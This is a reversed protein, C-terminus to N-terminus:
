ASQREFQVEAAPLILVFRTPGNERRDFRITGGNQRAYQWATSLGLGRGRGDFRGQLDGPVHLRDEARGTFRAVADITRDGRRLRHALRAGLELHDDVGPTPLVTMLSRM